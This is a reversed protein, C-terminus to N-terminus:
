KYKVKSFAVMWPDNFIGVLKSIYKSPLLWECIKLYVVGM